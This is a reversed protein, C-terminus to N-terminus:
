ANAITTVTGSSGRYKLAGNDVYLVGGGSPNSTPVTTADAIGVVGSGGGFSTTRIGMSGGEFRHLSGYFYLPRITSTSRDYGQILGWRTSGDDYSDLELDRGVHLSVALGSTVGIGVRGASDISLREAGATDDCLSFLGSTVANRFSWQRAANSLLMISTGASDLVALTTASDVVHFKYSPTTGIGVYANTLDLTLIDGDADGVEQLYTKNGDTKVLLSKASATTDEMRLTPAASALHLLSKPNIGTNSISLGSAISGGNGSHARVYVNGLAGTGHVDWVSYQSADMSQGVHGLGSVDMNLAAYIHDLDAPDYTVNINLRNHFDADDQEFSISGFSRNSADTLLINANNYLSMGLSNLSVVGNGASLVFGGNTDYRMYNGAGYDGVGFGYYNGSVGFAGDMNGFRGRETVSSWPSGAHTRVSYYPAGSGDASLELFGQGSAGYDMMGLGKEYTAPRTGNAFTCTYTQHGGSQAARTVTFWTESVSGQTEKVRIIDGNAFLWGTSPPDEISMTWTGSAPVNMTVDLKGAGKAIVMTGAVASVVDAEFVSSRISGRAVINRFVARGANSIRWGTGTVGSVWDDSQMHGYVTMVDTDSAGDDSDGLQSAGKNKAGTALLKTGTWRLHAGAPDGIRMKYAGSDLGIFVGTGSTYTIADADAGLTLAPVNSRIRFNGSDASFENPTVTWGALLEDDFEDGTGPLGGPPVISTQNLYEYAPFRIAAKTTRNTLALSGLYLDGSSFIRFDANYHDGGGGVTENDDIGYFDTGLLVGNIKLTAKQWTKTNTKTVITALTESTGDPTYGIRITETGKDFYEVAVKVNIPTASDRWGAGDADGTDDDDGALFYLSANNVYVCVQGAKRSFLPDPEGDVIELRNPPQLAALYQEAQYDLPM